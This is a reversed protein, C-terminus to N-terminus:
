ALGILTLLRERHGELLQLAKEMRAIRRELRLLEQVQAVRSLATDIPRSDTATEAM